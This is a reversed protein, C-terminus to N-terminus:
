FQLNLGRLYEITAHRCVNEDIERAKKLQNCTVIKLVDNLLHSYFKSSYINGALEEIQIEYQNLVRLKTIRDYYEYSCIYGDYYNNKKMYVNQKYKWSYEGNKGKAFYYMYELGFNRKFFLDLEKFTKFKFIKIKDNNLRHYDTVCENFGNKNKSEGIEIYPNTGLSSIEGLSILKEVKEYTKYNELLLRGNWALDGDWHCYVAEFTGDDKKLAILSRTSM